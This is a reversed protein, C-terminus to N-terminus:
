GMQAIQDVAFYVYMSYGNDTFASPLGTVNFSQGGFNDLDGKM